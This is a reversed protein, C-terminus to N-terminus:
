CRTRARRRHHIHEAAIHRRGARGHHGPRRSRRWACWARARIRRKWAKHLAGPRHDFPVGLAILDPRARAKRRHAARDRISWGAGAAITDEAHLAPADGAGAGGGHGKRGPRPPPKALPAQTLVLLAPALKLALFLGGGRASSSSTLACPARKPLTVRVRAFTVQVGNGSMAGVLLNAAARAASSSSHGPTAMPREALECTINLVRGDRAAAPKIRPSCANPRRRSQDAITPPSAYPTAM